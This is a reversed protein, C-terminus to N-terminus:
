RFTYGVTFKVGPSDLAGVKLEGFLGEKHELGLLINVGGGSHTGHNDSLRSVILAPGAGVYASLDKKPIKFHYAFEFNAAVTTVKHGFGIELNPRFRLQEILPDSAYHAGLHFQTPDGTVGVRLGIGTQAMASGVALLAMIAIVQFACKVNKKM